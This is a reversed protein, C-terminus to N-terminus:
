TEEGESDARSELVGFAYRWGHRGLLELFRQMPFGMVNFFDGEISAVLSAGVGQIGYAGAKDLPERTGVYAESEGAGLARFRVLTREVASTIRDPDAVAIGTYVTHEDAALRNVMEIADAPGSPKGLIEGRHAVLTDFGLTLAGPEIWRAAKARALREAAAAPGETPERSEDLGPVRVEFELGLQTLM